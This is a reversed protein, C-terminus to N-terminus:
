LGDWLARQATAVTSLPPSCHGVTTTPPSWQEPGPGYDFGAMDDIETAVGTTKVILVYHNNSTGNKNWTRFFALLTDKDNLVVRFYGKGKPALMKDESVIWEQGYAKGGITM